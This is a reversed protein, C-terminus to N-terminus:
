EATAALVVREAVYWYRGQKIKEKLTNPILLVYNSLISTTKMLAYRDSNATVVDYTTGMMAIIM